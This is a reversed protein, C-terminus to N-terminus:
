DFEAEAARKSSGVEASDIITTQSSRAALESARGRDKTEMPVFTTLNMFFVRDGRTNDLIAYSSSTIYAY